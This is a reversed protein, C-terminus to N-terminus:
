SRGTQLGPAQGGAVGNQRPLRRDPDLNELFGERVNPDDLVEPLQGVLQKRRHEPNTEAELAKADLESGLEFPQCDHFV